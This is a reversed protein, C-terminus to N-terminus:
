WHLLKISESNGHDNLQLLYEGSPLREGPITAGGKNSKGQWLIRGSMDVLALATEEPLDDIQWYNRSPNPRIRIKQPLVSGSSLTNDRTIAGNQKCITIANPNLIVSSMTPSWNFVYVQTDASNYVRVITDGTTSHLQLELATSFHKTYSPCSTTQILKVFVKSGAQNWSVTYLPYGRGYIWQNFFTDLNTRYFYEATSKLCATNANGLNYLGQYARLMAFFISDSPALDRLMSVVAQGKAYVTRSDFLSDAKTTDNVHVMGCTNNFIRNLYALRHSRAAAPSWFHNLFVQESFTAFGESLWVDGWDTYSVNDGFWQHCLEHAIIYTNPVGITTMTQHEMGGPLTTYCVGYKEKWFPYRGYLSSFYDVFLGLSDFNKKYLPNFTATDLFFNQILMSDSSGTFHMYSRYEAYRAIAISILYYTIPYHTQWHYRWYGPTTTTDVNVLVGNSGDVVGRPVTVFMDVSDIKDLVSQKAPWWVLAVWPDSVNFVVNTGGATVAHTLGNFFGGGAPPYGHYFIQASFMQGRVMPSPFVIARIFGSTYVPMRVGNIKASDITMLTDLEFTYNYMSFAAVQATTTVDGWLYLATDTAHLNFKLHKIDYDDEAPNLLTTRAGGKPTHPTFRGAFMNGSFTFLALCLLLLKNKM